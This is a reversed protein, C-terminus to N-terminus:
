SGNKSNTSTTKRIKIPKQTMNISQRREKTRERHRRLLTKLRSLDLVPHFTGLYLVTTEPGLTLTESSDQQTEEQTTTTSTRQRSPGASHSRTVAATRKVAFDEFPPRIQELLLTTKGQIYDWVKCMIAM